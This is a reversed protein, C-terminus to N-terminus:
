FLPVMIASIKTAGITSAVQGILILPVLIGLMIVKLSKHPGENTSVTKKMPM